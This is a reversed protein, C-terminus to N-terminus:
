AWCMLSRLSDSSPGQVERTIFVQSRAMDHLEGIGAGLRLPDKPPYIDSWAECQKSADQSASYIWSQIFFIPLTEQANCTLLHRLIVLSASYRFRDSRRASHELFHLFKALSMMWMGWRPWSRVNALCSICDSSSYQSETVWSSTATHSKAPLFCHPQIMAMQLTSSPALGRCIGRRPYRCSPSRWSTTNSFLMTSSASAKTHCHLVKRVFNDTGRPAPKYYSVKLIFFTCFNWGPM